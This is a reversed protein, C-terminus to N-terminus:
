ADRFQEIITQAIRALMNEQGEPSMGSIPHDPSNISQFMSLDTYTFLSPSLIVPLIRIGSANARALIAPLVGEVIVNSALFNASVLLLAVEATELADRFTKQEQQKAAIKTDDWM